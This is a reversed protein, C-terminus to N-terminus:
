TSCLMQLQTHQLPLPVGFAGAEITPLAVQKLGLETATYLASYVVQMTDMRLIVEDDYDDAQMGVAHIVTYAALEGGATVCFNMAPVPRRREQLALEVTRDYLAGDKKSLAAAVDNAPKLEGNAASVVAQVQQDAINGVILEVQM